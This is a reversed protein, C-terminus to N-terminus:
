LNVKKYTIRYRIPETLEVDKWKVSITEPLNHLNYTYTWQTGNVMETMNNKSINKEYVAETGFGPLPEFQFVTGIGFDPKRKNDYIFNRYVERYEPQKFNGIGDQNLVLIKVEMVNSSNKYNMFYNEMGGNGKLSKIKGADNYLVEFHNILQGFQYQDEKVVNGKADYFIHQDYSFQPHTLNNNHIIAIRKDKYEMEVNMITKGPYNVPDYSVRKLLQNNENYFYEALLQDANDYVKDVLLLFDEGKTKKLSADDPNSCGSWLCCCFLILTYKSVFADM